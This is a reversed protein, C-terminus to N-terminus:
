FTLTNEPKHGALANARMFRRAAFVLLVFSFYRKTSHPLKAAGSSCNPEKYAPPADASVNLVTSAVVALLPQSPAVASIM